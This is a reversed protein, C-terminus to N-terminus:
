REDDEPPGLLAKSLFSAHVRALLQRHQTHGIHSDIYHQARTVYGHATSTACAVERAVHSFSEEHLIRGRWAKWWSPQEAELEFAAHEYLCWVADFEEGAEIMKDAQALGSDHAAVALRWTEYPERVHTESVRGPDPYQQTKKEIYARLEAVKKEDDM